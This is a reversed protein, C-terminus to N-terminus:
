RNKGLEYCIMKALDAAAASHDRLTEGEDELRDYAGFLIAPMFIQAFNKRYGFYADRNQECVVQLVKDHVGCLAVISSLPLYKLIKRIVDPPLDEINKPPTVHQLVEYDPMKSPSQTLLLDRDATPVNFHTRRFTYPPVHAILISSSPLASRKNEWLKIAKSFSLQHCTSTAESVDLLVAGRQM